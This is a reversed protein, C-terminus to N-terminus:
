SLDTQRRQTIPCCTKKRVLSGHRVTLVTFRAGKLELMVGCVDFLIDNYAASRKAADVKTIATRTTAMDSIQSHISRRRQSQYNMVKEAKDYEFIQHDGQWKPSCSVGGPYLALRVLSSSTFLSPEFRVEFLNKKSVKM